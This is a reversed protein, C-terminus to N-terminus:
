TGCFTRSVAEEPAPPEAYHAREPQDEFPRALVDLLDDVVSLDGNEAAAIAREALHTRLIFAPNVARMAAIRAEDRRAEDGLRARWRSLWPGIADEDAFLARFAADAGAPDPERPLTSLRRFALTFDAGSEAMVALLESALQEDGERERELGLKQRLGAQYAAAFRPGYDELIAEAATIAETETEGLLPLLAEALRALNWLGIRPQQNFAYRGGHDISSLVTAPHYRDMFAFPGYDITEGAVSMNDTNMVGHIFGVHMWSAILEATAGAVRALLGRYPQAEDALDEYHRAIVYDALARVADPGLRAAYEFTGIRVHGRAVRALVGGPEPRQRYVLEGTSVMALARTTPIGLAAMAESGLYERIVPGLPARGDGRRSFPTPGSGKLQVDRRAGDRAIVEGLLLARGDGLRPVFGGFQHGAYALALPDGHAPLENGALMAVGEKSGLADPDLGLEEALARNLRLLRPASVPMPEVRAYFAEPLELYSSQHVLMSIM